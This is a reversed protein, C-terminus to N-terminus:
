LTLVVLGTPCSSRSSYVIKVGVRAYVPSLEGSTQCAITSERLKEQNFKDLAATEM